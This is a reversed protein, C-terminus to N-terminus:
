QYMGPFECSEITDIANQLDGILAQAEARRDDGEPINELASVCSELVTAADSARAARSTYRRKPLSYKVPMEGLGAPVEPAELNELENASMDFTQVSNTQQLGESANEVIERCEDALETLDAFAGEVATAITTEYEIFKIKRGLKPEDEEQDPEGLIEDDNSADIDEIPELDDSNSAPAAPIPHADHAALWARVAEMWTLPLAALLVKPGIANLFRTQEPLPADVFAMSNLGGGAAVPQGMPSSAVKPRLKPEATIKPRRTPRTKGDAGTTKAL